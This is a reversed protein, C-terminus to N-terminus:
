LNGDFHLHAAFGAAEWDKMRAWEWRAAALDITVWPLPRLRVGANLSHTDYEALISAWPRVRHEIGAFPGVLVHNVEYSSDEDTTGRHRDWWDVAWGATLATTGASTEVDWTLTAYTANFLLFGYMDQMGVAISPLTGSGRVLLAQASLMGDTYISEVTGSPGAASPMGNGRITVELRPTFGLTLYGAFYFSPVNEPITFHSFDKAPFAQHDTIVGGFSFHSDEVVRATPVFILGSSGTLSTAAPLTEASGCLLSVAMASAWVGRFWSSVM